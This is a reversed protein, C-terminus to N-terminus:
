WTQPASFSDIRSSRRFIYLLNGMCAFGHEKGNDYDLVIRAEIELGAAKALRVMERHTFVHGYTDIAGDLWRATVDGNEDSWAVRDRIWRACTPVIGYSRLNYRHIFDLFLRGGTSLLHAASSLAQQRKDSTTIHGLVNWLCTIVDFRASISDPRLDEARISWLEGRGTGQAPMEVAPELMVLREIGATQAIRLARKGDGSGLDLLSHSGAPIRHLILTEVAELYAKRRVCLQAYHPALRNYAGVPDSFHEPAVAAM